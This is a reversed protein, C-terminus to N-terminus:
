SRWAIVIACRFPQLLAEIESRMRKAKKAAKKRISLIDQVSLARELQPEFVFLKAIKRANEEAGTALWVKGDSQLNLNHMLPDPDYKEILPLPSGLTQQIYTKLIHTTNAARAKGLCANNRPKGIDCNKLDLPDGFTQIDTFGRVEIEFARQLARRPLLSRLMKAFQLKSFDSLSSGATDFLNQIIVIRQKPLDFAVGRIPLRGSQLGLDLAEVYPFPKKHYIVKTLHPSPVNLAEVREHLTHWRKLMQDLDANAFAARESFLIGVGGCLMLAIFKSFGRM